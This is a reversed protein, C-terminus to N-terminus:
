HVEVTKQAKLTTPVQMLIEPIEDVRDLFQIHSEEEAKQVTRTPTFSPPM